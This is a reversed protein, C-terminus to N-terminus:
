GSESRVEGGVEQDVAKETASTVRVCSPLTPGFALSFGCSSPAERGHYAVRAAVKILRNILREMSRKVEEGKM